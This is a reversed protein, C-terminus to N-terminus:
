RSGVRGIKRDLGRTGKRVTKCFNETHLSYYKKAM